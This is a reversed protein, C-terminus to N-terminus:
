RACVIAQINGDDTQAHQIVATSIGSVLIKRTGKVVGMKRKTRDSIVVIHEGQEILSIQKGSWNVREVKNKCATMVDKPFNAMPDDPNALERWVGSIQIPIGVEVAEKYTVLRDNEVCLSSLLGIHRLGDLFASGIEGPMWLLSDKAAGLDSSSGTYISVAAGVMVLAPDSRKSLNGWVDARIKDWDVDGDKTHANLARGYMRSIDKGEQGWAVHEFLVSPPCALAALAETNVNYQAIHKEYEKMLTSFWDDTSVKLAAVDDSKLSGAIREVLAEPITHSTAIGAARHMVWRRAASLNKGDKVTGDIVEELSFPMTSDLDLAAEIMLMNCVSGLVGANMSARKVAALMARKTYTLPLDPSQTSGLSMVERNPDIQTPLLTSDMQPLDDPLWTEIAPSLVLYEGQQNPSRWCLMKIENTAKEVFPFTWIGDDNDMGGLIAQFGSRLDDDNMFIRGSEYDAEATGRPVVYKYGDAYKTSAPMVYFRGGPIPFRTSRENAMIHLLHSKAARRVTGAFWMLEGGSLVYEALSWNAVKELDDETTIKGGIRNLIRDRDGSLISEIYEKGNRRLSDVLLDNQLWFAHNNILSQIDLRMEKKARYPRLGVFIFGTSRVGKKHSGTPGYLDFVRQVGNVYTTDEDVVLAHGKLLGRGNIITIEVSGEDSLDPFKDRIFQRSIRYAGDWAQPCVTNDEVFRVRDLFRAHGRKFPSALARLVYKSTKFAGPELDVELQLKELFESTSLPTKIAVVKSDKVGVFSYGDIGENIMAQGPDIGLEPVYRGIKVSEIVWDDLRDLFPYTMDGMPAVGGNAEVVLEGSQDRKILTLINMKEAISRVDLM